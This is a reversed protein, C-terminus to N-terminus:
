TMGQTLTPTICVGCRHLPAPGASTSGPVVQLLAHDSAGQFWHKHVDAAAAALPGAVLDIRSAGDRGRHTAGEVDLPFSARSAWMDRLLVALEGEAVDRPAHYDLNVDGVFWEDGVPPRDDPLRGLAAELALLM